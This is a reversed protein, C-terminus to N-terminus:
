CKNLQNIIHITQVAFLAATETRLRSEGFSVPIFGKEIASRAESPSFDGEPGILILVDDGPRIECAFNHREVDDACYAIFKQGKFEEKLLSNFSTMERLVPKIGKLSQKMASVLIKDLRDTKFIKRESHECHLPIIEDIGIETAKEFLWEMRDINKTPAVALVIRKGWHNPVSQTSLIDCTVHKPYDDVIVAEYRTGKGDVVHITDGVSHRLVRVCHGSEAEPLTRNNQFDPAYFQIM